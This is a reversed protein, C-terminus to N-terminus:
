QSDRDIAIQAKLDAATPKDPGIEAMSGDDLRVLVIYSDEDSPPSKMRVQEPSVGLKKIKKGVATVDDFNM